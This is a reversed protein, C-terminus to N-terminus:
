GNSQIARRAPVIPEGKAEHVDKADKPIDKIAMQKCDSQAYHAAKGAPLGERATSGTKWEFIFTDTETSSDSKMHTFGYGVEASWETSESSVEPVGAEVKVKVGFSATISHSMSTTFTKSTEKKIAPELTFGIPISGEGELNNNKVTLSGISTRSMGLKEKKYKDLTDQDRCGYVHAPALEDLITSTCDMCLLVDRRPTKYAADLSYTPSEPIMTIFTCMLAIMIWIDGLYARISQQLPLLILGVLFTAILRLVFAHSLTLARLRVYVSAIQNTIAQRFWVMQEIAETITFNSDSIIVDVVVLRTGRVIRPTIRLRIVGYTSKHLRPLSSLSESEWRAHLQAIDENNDNSIPLIRGDPVWNGLIQSRRHGLMFCFQRGRWNNVSVLVRTRESKMPDQDIDQNLRIARLSPYWSDSPYVQTTFIAPMGRLLFSNELPDSRSASNEPIMSIYMSQVNARRSVTIPIARPLGDCRQFQDSQGEQLIPIALDAFFNNAFRCNLCAFTGEELKLIPFEIQLGRNTLAYPKTPRPNVSRVIIGSGNFDSPSQALFRYQRNYTEDAYSRPSLLGWAFISQDNSQKMIEEQLRRFANSGEGYLLPINIDFIGLLCYAIDEERTTNRTSAWCMKEAISARGLRTTDAGLYYIDIKTIRSIQTALDDKTGIVEWAANFLIM